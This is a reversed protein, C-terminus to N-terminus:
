WAPLVIASDRSAASRPRRGRTRRSERSPARRSGGRLAVSETRVRRSFRRTRSFSANRPPCPASTGIGSAAAPAPRPTAPVGAGAPPRVIAAARPVECCPAPRARCADCRCTPSTARASGRRRTGGRCLHLRRLEADIRLAEPLRFRHEIEVHADIRWSPPSQSWTSNGSGVVPSMTSSNSLSARASSAESYPSARRDQDLIRADAHERRQPM